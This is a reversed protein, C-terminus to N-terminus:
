VGCPKPHQVEICNLFQVRTSDVEADVTEAQRQGEADRSEVLRDHTISSYKPFFFCIRLHTSGHM